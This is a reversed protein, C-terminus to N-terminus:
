NLWQSIMDIIKKDYLQTKTIQNAKNIDVDTMQETKKASEFDGILNFRKIVKQKYDNNWFGPIGEESYQNSLPEWFIMGDFMFDYTLGPVGGLEGSYDFTDKGFPSDLFNFANPKDGLAHLAADWKGDQIAIDIKKGNERKGGIYNLMITAVKGPFKAELRSAASPFFIDRGQISYNENKYAHRKNMIVLAKETSKLQNIVNLAMINDRNVDLKEKSFNSMDKMIKDFDNKDQINKWDWKIDTLRLKVKKSNPLGSNLQCMKIWYKYINTRQWGDPFFPYDRLNPLFISPDYESNGIFKDLNKQLNISGGVETFVKGVKDVFRPDSTLKYIFEWQTAERHDREALVIIDYKSFLDLVYNTPDQGNKKLYDLYPFIEAKVDIKQTYGNLKSNQSEQNQCAFTLVLVFVAFYFRM